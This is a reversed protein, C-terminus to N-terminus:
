GGREVRPEIRQRGGDVVRRSVIRDGPGVRGLAVDRDPLVVTARDDVMVILQREAAIAARSWERFTAHYPARRWADPAGPDVQVLLVAGDASPAMVFKARDPRWEPGLNERQLWLCNFTRCEDPRTEYIGCGKGIKCHPCWRGLPKELAAIGMVKCCLTCGGCDRASM